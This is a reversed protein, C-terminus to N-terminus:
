DMSFIVMLGILGIVICAPLISISLVLLTLVALFKFMASVGFIVVILALLILFPM